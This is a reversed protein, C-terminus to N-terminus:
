AKKNHTRIVEIKEDRPRKKRPRGRGRKVPAEAPADLHRRQAEKPKEEIANKIPDKTQNKIPEPNNRMTNSSFGRSSCQKARYIVVKFSAKGATTLEFVCADGKRLRNDLVFARWGSQARVKPKTNYMGSHYRVTWVRGSSDHLKMFGIGGAKSIHTKFFAAPINLAYPSQVYSSQMLVIFFPNTTEFSAARSLVEVEEPVRFRRNTLCPVSKPRNNGDSIHGDGHEDKQAQPEEENSSKTWEPSGSYSSTEMSPEYLSDDDDDPSNTKRKKKKKKLSRVQTLSPSERGKCECSQFDDDSIEIIIDETEELEQSLLHEDSLKSKGCNEKSVMPYKIESASRNFIVVRFVSNGEYRFTLLYGHKISYHKVFDSWSDQLWFDHNQRRLKMKWVDGSPVNLCVFNSFNNGYRRAFKKPITLKGGQIHRACMFKFFHPTKAEFLQGDEHACFPGSNSWRANGEGVASTM